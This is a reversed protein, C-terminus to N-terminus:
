QNLSDEAEASSARAAQLKHKLDFVELTLPQVMDHIGKQLIFELAAVKAELMIRMSRERVLPNEIATALSSQLSETFLVMAPVSGYVTPEVQQVLRVVLEEKPPDGEKSLQYYWGKLASPLTVDWTPFSHTYNLIESFNKM